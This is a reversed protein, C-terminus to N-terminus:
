KRGEWARGSRGGQGRRKKRKEGNLGTTTFNYFLSHKVEVLDPVV